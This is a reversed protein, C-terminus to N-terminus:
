VNNDVTVTTGNILSEIIACTTATTKTADIADILPSKDREICNLFHDLEQPFNPHEIQIPIPLETFREVGPIDRKYFNNNLICGQTGYVQLNLQYPSAMGFSVTLKAVAGSEFKLTALITDATFTAAPLGKKNGVAYVEQVDGAIWRMLDIPHCAGGLVPLDKNKKDSWWPKAEKLFRVYDDSKIDGIPENQTEFYRLISSKMDHIYDGELYIVEGLTGDESMKKAAEFVKSFRCIYGVMLKKNYQKAAKAVKRCDEITNALPKEVFVHKGNSLAQVAQEAHLQNPTCIYVISVNDDNLLQSYDTYQKKCNYKTALRNLREPSTDCLAYLEARPSKFIAEAHQCGVFGLGVIAVNHEGM